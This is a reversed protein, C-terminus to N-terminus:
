ANLDLWHELSRVGPRLHDTCSTRESSSSTTVAVARARESSLVAVTPPALRQRVYSVRDPLIRM